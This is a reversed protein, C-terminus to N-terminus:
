DNLRRWPGRAIDEVADLDPTFGAGPGASVEVLGGPLVTLNEAVLPDFWPVYELWVEDQPLSALVQASVHPYLHPLMVAGAADVTHAIDAWACLGGVREPEGILYPVGAEILQGFAEASYATEGTSVPVAAHQALQRYGAIDHHPLPDEIWVLGFDALREAAQLAQQPTWRQLADVMLSTDDPLSQRVAQIRDVDEDLSPKGVLMKVARLGNAYMGAAEDVLEEVTAQLMLGTQYFRLRDRKRGLIAGLSQERRRCILDEIAMQLGSVGFATVGAPGFFTTAARLTAALRPAESLAHQTVVDVLYRLGAELLPAHQPQQAWLLSYGCVGDTDTVRILLIPVETPTRRGDPLVFAKIGTPLAVHRVDVQVVHTQLASTDEVLRDIVGTM